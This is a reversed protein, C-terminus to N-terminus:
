LSPETTLFQSTKLPIQIQTGSCVHHIVLTQIELKLPDSVRKNQGKFASCLGPVCVYMNIFCGYLYIFYYFANLM